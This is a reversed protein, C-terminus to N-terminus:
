GVWDLVVWLYRTNFRVRLSRATISVKFRLLFPVTLREYFM